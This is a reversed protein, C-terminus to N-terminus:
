HGLLRWKQPSHEKGTNMRRHLYRRPLQSKGAQKAGHLWPLFFIYLNKQSLLFFDFPMSSWINPVLLQIYVVWNRKINQKQGYMYLNWNRNCINNYKWNHGKMHLFIIKVQRIELKESHCKSRVLYGQLGHHKTLLEKHRAGALNSFIRWHSRKKSYGINNDSIKGSADCMSSVFIVSM